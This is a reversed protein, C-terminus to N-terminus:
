ETSIVAEEGDLAARLSHWALTACKIRVPFERVGSLIGLKGLDGTSPDTGLPATVMKQFRTIMERAESPTKSEVAESMLSASATSIACGSGEFRVADISGDKLAVYFTFKDGCLPTFGQITQTANELRGFNRPARAHDVIVQQYLERLDYM